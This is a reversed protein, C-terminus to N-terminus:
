QPQEIRLDENYCEGFKPNYNPSVVINTHGEYNHMFLFPETVELTLTLEKSPHSFPLNFVMLRRISVNDNGGWGHRTVPQTVGDAIVVGESVFQYGLRGEGTRRSDSLERGPVEIGLSYCTKFKYKLPIVIREGKRTVDFPVDVINVYFSDSLFFSQFWNTNYFYVGAAVVIILMMASKKM